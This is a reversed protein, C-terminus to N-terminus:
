TNGPKLKKKLTASEMRSRSRMMLFRITQFFALIMITAIRQRGAVNTFQQCSTMPLAAVDRRFTV